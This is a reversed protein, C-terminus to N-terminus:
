RRSNSTDGVDCGRINSSGGYTVGINITVKYPDTTGQLWNNGSIGWPDGEPYVGPGNVWCVSGIYPDLLSVTSGNVSIVCNEPGSDDITCSAGQTQNPYITVTQSTSHTDGLQILATQTSNTYNVFTIDITDHAHATFSYILSLWVIALFHNMNHM